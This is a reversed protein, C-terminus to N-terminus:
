LSPIRTSPTGGQAHTLDKTESLIFKTGGDRVTCANVYCTYCLAEYQDADGIVVQADNKSKRFTRTAEGRCRMCVARLKVIEAEPIAMLFHTSGFPEDRYDTDLGAIIVRKERAFLTRVTVIISADFFQAEDIGIVDYREAIALIDTATRVSIADMCRGDRSCIREATGRTDLAPKVILARMGAIESRKMKRLLEESKGAFMCGVIVTLQGRKM